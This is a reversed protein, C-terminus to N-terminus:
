SFLKLMRGRAAASTRSHADVKGYIHELHKKVTGVTIVMREAIERNSLGEAVLQLVEVERKSLPEYHEKSTTSVITSNEYARRNSHSELSVSALWQELVCSLNYPHPAEMQGAIDRLRLFITYTDAFQGMRYTYLGQDILLTAVTYRDSYLHALSLATETYEQARAYNGQVRALEAQVVLTFLQRSSSPTTPASYSLLRLACSLDKYANDPDNMVRAYFGRIFIIVAFTDPDDTRCIEVFRQASTYCSLLDAIHAFSSIPEWLILSFDCSTALEFSARWIRYGQQYKGRSFLLGGLRNLFYALHQKDQTYRSAEIGLYLIQEAEALNSLRSVLHTLGAVLRIVVAYKGQQWAQTLAAYLFEQESELQLVDSQYREVFALAYTQLDRRPTSSLEPVLLEVRELADPIWTKNSQFLASTTKM